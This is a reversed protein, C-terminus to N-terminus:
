KNPNDGNEKQEVNNPTNVKKVGESSPLYEQLFFVSKKGGGEGGGEGVIM